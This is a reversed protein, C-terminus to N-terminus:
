FYKPKLVESNNLNKSSLPKLWENLVTPMEKSSRIVSSEFPQTEVMGEPRIFKENLAVSVRKSIIFVEIKLNSDKKMLAKCRRIGYSVSTRRRGVSKGLTIQSVGKFYIDLMYCMVFSAKEIMHDTRYKSFRDMGVNYFDGVIKKIINGKEHTIQPQTSVIEAIKEKVEIIHERLKIIRKSNREHVKRSNPKKKIRSQCVEINKIAVRLQRNLKYIPKYM